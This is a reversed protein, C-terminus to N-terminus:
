KVEVIKDIKGYTLKRLLTKNFSYAEYISDYAKVWYCKLVDSFPIMWGAVPISTKSGCIHSNCTEIIWLKDENSLEEGDDIKKRLIAAKSTSPYEIANKSFKWAKVM